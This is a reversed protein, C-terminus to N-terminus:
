SAPRRAMRWHERDRPGMMLGLGLCSCVAILFILWLGVAPLQRDDGRAFHPLVYNSCLNTIVFGMAICAAGVMMRKAKSSIVPLFPVAYRWACAIFLSCIVAAYAIFQDAAGLHMQVFTFGSMWVIFAILITCIAIMFRELLKGSGKRFEVNLADISGLRRVASEFAQETTAGAKVRRQVDERLHSELEDLAQPSKIGGASLERRWAAILQDLDRM